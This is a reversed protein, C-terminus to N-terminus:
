HRWCQTSVRPTGLGTSSTAHREGRSQKLRPSTRKHTPTGSRRLMSWCHAFSLKKLKEKINSASINLNRRFFGLVKNAKACTNSIHDDWIATSNITVGLYNALSINELTHGHLIYSPQLLKRSRTISLTQCKAPHFGTDWSGEWDALRQLDEQLQTQDHGNSITGYMARDDAFLRASATLKEPMDNIHALFLCRDRPCEQCVERPPLFCRESCSSSTQQSGLTQLARCVTVSSSTYCCPTTWKTSRRVSTWSLDTQKGSVLNTILEEVLDLVQTEPDARESAMSTTQSADECVFLMAESLASGSVWTRSRTTKLITCM